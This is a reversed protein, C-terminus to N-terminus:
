PDLSARKTLLHVSVFKLYKQHEEAVPVTYHADKLDVFAMFCNPTILRVAMEITDMKFHHYKVHKNLGKLNLTMRSTGGKKPRTFIPSIYEGPCHQSKVIVKKDLLKTIEWILLMKNQFVVPIKGHYNIKDHNTLLSLIPM